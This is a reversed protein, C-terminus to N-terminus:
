PRFLWCSSARTPRAPSRSLLAGDFLGTVSFADSHERDLGLTGAADLLQRVEAVFAVQETALTRDGHV